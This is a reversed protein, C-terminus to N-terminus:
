TAPACSAAAAGGRLGNFGSAVVVVFVAVTVCMCQREQVRVCMVKWGKGDVSGTMTGRTGKM